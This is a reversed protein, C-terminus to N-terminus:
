AAGLDDLNLFEVGVELQGDDSPREYVVRARTHLVEHDVTMLLDLTAGTGLSEAAIFCCGGRAITTTHGFEELAEAGLKKVLLSHHSALRPFRRDHDAM